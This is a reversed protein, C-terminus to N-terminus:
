PPLVQLVNNQKQYISNAIELYATDDSLTLILGPQNFGRGKTLFSSQGMLVM